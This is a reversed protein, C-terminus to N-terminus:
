CRAYQVIDDTQSGLFHKWNGTDNYANDVHQMIETVNFTLSTHETCLRHSHLQNQPLINDFRTHLCYVDKNNCIAQCSLVGCRWYLKLSLIFKIVSIGELFSSRHAMVVGLFLESIVLSHNSTIRVWYSALFLGPTETCMVSKWM